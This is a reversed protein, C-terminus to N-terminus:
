RGLWKNCCLVFSTFNSRQVKLNFLGEDVDFKAHIDRCLGRTRKCTILKGFDILKIFRRSVKTATAQGM